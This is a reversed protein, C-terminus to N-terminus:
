AYYNVKWEVVDGDEDMIETTVEYFEVGGIIEGGIVVFDISYRLVLKGTLDEPIIKQVEAKEEETLEFGDQPYGNSDCTGDYHLIYRRYNTKGSRERAEEVQQYFWEKYDDILKLM